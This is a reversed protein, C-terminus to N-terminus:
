TLFNNERQTVVSLVYDHRCCGRQLCIMIPHESGSISRSTGRRFSHLVFTNDELMRTSIKPILGRCIRQELIGCPTCNTTQCTCLAPVSSTLQLMGLGASVAHNKRVAKENNVPFRETIYVTESMIVDRGGNLEVTFVFFHLEIQCTGSRMKQAYVRV